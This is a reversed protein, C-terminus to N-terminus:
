RKKILLPTREKAKIYGGRSRKIVPPDYEDEYEKLNVNRLRKWEKHYRTKAKLPMFVEKPKDVV